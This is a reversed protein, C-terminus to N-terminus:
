LIQTKGRSKANIGKSRLISIFFLNLKEAIEQETMQIFNHAPHSYYPSDTGYNLWKIIDNKNDQSFTEFWSPYDYSMFNPDSLLQVLYGNGSNNIITRTADYASETRKYVDGEPKSYVTRRYMERFIEILYDNIEKRIVREIQQQHWMFVQEATAM